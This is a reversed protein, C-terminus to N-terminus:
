IFKNLVSNLIFHSPMCLDLSCSLPCLVRKILESNKEYLAKEVRRSSRMCLYPCDLAGEGSHVGKQQRFIHEAPLM